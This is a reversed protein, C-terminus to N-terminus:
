FGWTVDPYRRRRHASRGIGAVLLGGLAAVLMGGRWRHADLAAGVVPGGLANGLIMATGHWSMAEGCHAAPM